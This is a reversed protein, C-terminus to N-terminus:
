GLDSERFRTLTVTASGSAGTTVGVAGLWPGGRMANWHDSLDAVTTGAADLVIRTTQGSPDAPDSLCDLQLSIAGGRADTQGTTLSRGRGSAPTATISYAGSPDIAAYYANGGSGICAVGTLLVTSTNDGVQFDAAVGIGSGSVARPALELHNLDGSAQMVLGTGPEYTVTLGGRESGTTWVDGPEEFSDFFVLHGAGPAISAPLPTGSVAPSAGAPASGCGALGACLLILLRRHM